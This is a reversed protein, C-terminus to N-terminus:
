YNKGEAKKEMDSCKGRAEWDLHIREMDALAFTGLRRYM